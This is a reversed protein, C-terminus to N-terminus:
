LGPRDPRPVVLRAGRIGGGGRPLAARHGIARRSATRESGSEFLTHDGLRHLARFRDRKGAGASGPAREGHRCYRWAPLAAGAAPYQRACLPLTNSGPRRRGSLLAVHAPHDDAPSAPKRVDRLSAGGCAQNRWLHEEPDAHCRRRDLGGPREAGAEHCQRVHQDHEHVRLGRRVAEELLALTGSVNTDIFDQASHTAVHPKHLTACHLVATVGAMAARVTEGDAVSGIIDTHPSTKIDLGRAPRGQARLLRLLAEGLHGASGTVLIM